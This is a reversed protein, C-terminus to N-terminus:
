IALKKKNACLKIGYKDRLEIKKLEWSKSDFDSRRLNFMLICCTVWIGCLEGYPATM